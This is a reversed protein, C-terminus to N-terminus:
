PGILVTLAALIGSAVLSGGAQEIVSRMSKLCERIIPQKPKPAGLQAKITAMDARLEAIAGEPVDSARKVAAEVQAILKVVAEFDLDQVVLTQTSAQVDKQLQSQHMSGIFTEINFTTRSPAAKEKEQSSFTMGSGHIGKKELEIAWKLVANRVADLIGRAQSKDFHLAPKLAPGTMANMLQQEWEPSFSFVFTGKDEALSEFQSIPSPFTMKSCREAVSHASGFDLPIWGRYPNWVQVTGHLERYAPINTGAAPYGNLECEIWTAFERHDLKHAVVLAKRLLSPVSTKDNLAEHQLEAVVSATM